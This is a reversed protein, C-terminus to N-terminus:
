WFVAVLLVPFVLSIISLTQWHTWGGVVFTFLIGVTLFLQFFAGLSGRISTEAIEGIYMPAAVCIGGPFIYFCIYYPM